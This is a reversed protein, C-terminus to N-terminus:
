YSGKQPSPTSRLVGAKHRKKKGQTEEDGQDSSEDDKDESSEKAEEAVPASTQGGAESADFLRGRLQVRTVGLNREKKQSAKDVLQGGPRARLPVKEQLESVPQTNVLPQGIPETEYIKGRIINELQTALIDENLKRLITISELVEPRDGNMFYALGLGFQAYPITVVQLVESFYHIAREADSKGLLYTWGLSFKAQVMNPNIELARLTHKEAKDFHGMGYYTKGLNNHAEAYNPDIRVATKFYWAVEAENIHIAHTALGLGNYAPAFDHNLAVSEEYFEVAERYQGQRYAQQGKLFFLQANGVAANVSFVATGMFLVTFFLDIFRNRIRNVM